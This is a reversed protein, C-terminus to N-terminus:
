TQCTGIGLTACACVRTTSGLTEIKAMDGRDFVIYGSSTGNIVLGNLSRILSCSDTYLIAPDGNEYTIDFEEAIQQLSTNSLRFGLQVVNSPQECKGLHRAYLITKFDQMDIEQGDRYNSCIPSNANQVVQQITNETDPGGSSSLTTILVAGVATAVVMLIFGGTLSLSLEGSSM